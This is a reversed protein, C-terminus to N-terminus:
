GPKQAVMMVSSGWPYRLGAALGLNEIKMITHFISNLVPNPLATDSVAKSAEPHRGFMTPLRSLVILPFLYFCRYSIGLVELGMDDALKRMDKTHSRENTHVAQDHESYLWRLAPTNTIFLGKPKLAGAMKKLGGLAEKIGIMYIVDMSIILDYADHHLDPNCIDGQYIDLDPTKQRTYELSTPNIDFGSLAANKFHESLCRLNAGTGCGADLVIPNESLEKGYRDLLHTLSGRLGRYWWLDDETRAM